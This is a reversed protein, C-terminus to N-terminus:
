RDDKAYLEIQPKFAGCHCKFFATATAICIAAGNFAIM